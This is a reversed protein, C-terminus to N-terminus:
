MVSRLVVGEWNGGVCFMALYRMIFYRYGDGRGWDLFDTWLHIFLM